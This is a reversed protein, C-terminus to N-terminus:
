NKKKQRFDKNIDIIHGKLFNHSKMMSWNSIESLFFLTRKKRMYDQKAFM